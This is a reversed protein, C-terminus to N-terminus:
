CVVRSSKGSLHVTEPHAARNVRDLGQGVHVVQEGERDVQDELPGPLFALGRPTDLGLRDSAVVGGDDVAIDVWDALHM